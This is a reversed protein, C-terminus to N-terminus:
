LDPNRISFDDLVLKTYIYALHPGDYLHRM